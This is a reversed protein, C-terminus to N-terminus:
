INLWRMHGSPKQLQQCFLLLLCLVDKLQMEGQMKTRRNLGDEGKVEVRYIRSPDLTVVPDFDPLFRRAKLSYGWPVSYGDDNFYITEVVKNESFTAEQLVKSIETVFGMLDHKM